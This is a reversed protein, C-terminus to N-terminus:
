TRFNNLKSNLEEASKYLSMAIESLEVMGNENKKSITNLIEIQELVDSNYSLIQHSNKVSEQTLTTTKEISDVSSNINNQVDQSIDSLHAINKVNNKMQEGVELVSQSVVNITAHIEMLSHQTREALKRVEDAVVAFGRGHEGARAAEIAANLALLNTQDAIDGILTLVNKIQDTQSSLQLLKSNLENELEVSHNVSEIMTYIDDRAEFLQTSTQQMHEKTQEFNKSTTELITHISHVQETTKQAIKFEEDVNKKITTAITAMQKAHDQNITSVNKAEAVTHKLGLVFQNISQAMIGTEDRSSIHITKTLNNHDKSVVNTINLVSSTTQKIVLYINIGSILLGIFGVVSNKTIIEDIALAPHM